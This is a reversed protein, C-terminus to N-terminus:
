NPNSNIEERFYQILKGRDSLFFLNGTDGDVVIQPWYGTVCMHEIVAEVDEDM